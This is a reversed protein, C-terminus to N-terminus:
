RWRVATPHKYRLQLACLSCRYDCTPWTPRPSCLPFLPGGHVADFQEWGRDVSGRHGARTRTQAQDPSHTSLRQCLLAGSCGVDMLQASYASTVLRNISIRLFSGCTLLQKRTPASQSCSKSRKGSGLTTMNTASRPAFLVTHAQRALISWEDAHGDAASQGDRCNRRRPEM